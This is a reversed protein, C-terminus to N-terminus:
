TTPPQDHRRAEEQMARQALTFTARIRRTADLVHWDSGLQYREQELQARREEQRRREAEQDLYALLALLLLCGFLAAM